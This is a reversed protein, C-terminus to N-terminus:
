DAGCSDMSIWQFKQFGGSSESKPEVSIQAATAKVYGACSPTDFDKRFVFFVDKRQVHTAGAPIPDPESCTYNCM